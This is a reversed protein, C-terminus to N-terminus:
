FEEDEEVPDGLTNAGDEVIEAGLEVVCANLGEQDLGTAERGKFCEMKKVDEPKEMYSYLTCKLRGALVLDRWEERTLRGDGDSDGLRFFFNAQEQDQVSRLPVNTFNSM